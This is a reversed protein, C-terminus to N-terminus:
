KKNNCALFSHGYGRRPIVRELLPTMFSHRILCEKVYFKDNKQLPIEM